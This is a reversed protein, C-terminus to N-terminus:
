NTNSGGAMRAKLINMLRPRALVDGAMHHGVRTDIKAIFYGSEDVLVETSLERELAGAVFARYRWVDEDNPV